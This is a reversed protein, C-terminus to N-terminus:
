GSKPGLVRDGQVDGESEKNKEGDKEEKRSQENKIKEGGGGKEQDRERAGAKWIVYSGRALSFEVWVQEVVGM